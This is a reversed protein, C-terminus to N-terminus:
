IAELPSLRSPSLCRLFIVCNFSIFFWDVLDFWWGGMKMLRLMTRGRLVVM